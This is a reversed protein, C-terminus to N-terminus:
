LNRGLDASWTIFIILGVVVAALPWLAGTVFAQFTTCGDGYAVGYAFSGAFLYLLAAIIFLIIM